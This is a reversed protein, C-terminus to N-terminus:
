SENGFRFRAIRLTTHLTTYIKLLQKGISIVERKM